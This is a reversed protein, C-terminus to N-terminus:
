QVLFLLSHEEKKKLSKRLNHQTSTATVSSIPSFIPLSKMSSNLHRRSLYEKLSTLITKNYTWYAETSQRSKYVHRAENLLAKQDLFDYRNLLEEAVIFSMAERYITGDIDFVAIKNV